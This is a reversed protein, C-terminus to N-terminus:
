RWQDVSWQGHVPAPPLTLCVKKTKMTMVPHHKKSTCVRWKKSQTGRLFGMRGKKERGKKTKELTHTHTEQQELNKFVRLTTFTGKGFAKLTNGLPAFFLVKLPREGEGEELKQSSFRWPRLESWRDFLSAGAEKLEVKIGGENKVREFFPWPGQM